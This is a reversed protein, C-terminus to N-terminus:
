VTGNKGTRILSTPKLSFCNFSFLVVALTAIAEIVVSFWLSTFGTAAMLILVLKVGLVMYVSLLNSYREIYEAIRKARAFSQVDGNLVYIDATGKDAQMIEKVDCVEVDLSAPSHERGLGNEKYVYMLSSNQTEALDKLSERLRDGRSFSYFETVDLENAAKNAQARPEDSYMYIGNVGIARLEAVSQVAEDKLKDALAIKGAYRGGIALCVALEEAKDDSPLVVGKRALFEKSGALIAVNDVSVEVGEGRTETFGSVLEIYISGGYSSIIARGLPNSSYAFAHASIKLLMEPEFRESKVSSVRLNGDSLTGTKSFAAKNIETLKSASDKGSFIIGNSAAAFYAGYRILPLAVCAAYPSALVWVAVARTLAEAITLDFLYYGLALVLLASAMVVLNLYKILKESKQSLRSPKDAAREVLNSVLQAGSEAMTAIVECRLEGDVCYTGAVLEDGESVMLKEESGCLASMNLEAGGDIVICDCALYEGSRLLLTDGVQVSEAEVQSESEGELIWATDAMYYLRARVEDRTRWYVYSVAIHGVQFIIVSVAAETGMGLVFATIVSLTLYIARDGDNGNLAALATAALIDAGAILTAVIILAYDWQEPISQLILVVILTLSAVVLRIYLSLDRMISGVRSDGGDASVAQNTNHSGALKELYGRVSM